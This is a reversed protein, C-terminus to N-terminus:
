KVILPLITQGLDGSAKLMYLGPALGGVDLQQTTHTQLVRAGKVDLIEVDLLSTGQHSWDLTVWDSAPNPMVTLNFSPLNPIWTPELLNVPRLSAGTCGTSDSETLSVSASGIDNGWIVTLTTTGQGEFINGGQVSWEFVDGQAGNYNYTATDGAFPFIPGSINGDGLEYCLGNDVNALENYNCADSDTCGLVAPVGACVCDEGVADFVTDEDGDDCSEGPVECTGNDTNALADYNCADSNTCGLVAPLCFAHEIGDGYNAEGMQFLVAGTSDFAAYTGDVGCQTWYAGNLGDGYTDEIVMTYCGETLCQEFVVSDQATEYTGPSVSAVVEGGDLVLEWGIDEPWCDTLISFEFDICPFDCSGNDITALSDYNYATPGTCGQILTDCAPTQVDIAYALPLSDVTYSYSYNVDPLLGSLLITEGSNISVSDCQWGMTDADNWSCLTSTACLFSSLEVGLTVETLVTDLDANYVCGTSAFISDPECEIPGCNALALQLSNNVNLRGGTVTEGILNNVVDVGDFVYGRVLDAAAQPNGLALEMLGPCPASYILAIAGAVCPTAFSTGSSGGYGSSGSPLLVNEGPAAFDVTTAGYASFTRVDNNNTATISLMYPSSCGTPLDDVVDINVNNNATAGCNLIGVEGLDDYFGCWVTAQSSNGGDIGWSANTAVVFAGREGNSENFLARMEYPYNYSAVVNAESLGGFGMDVQMIDVDWNVGAGGIGNDGTAGIMGSVSTGHEGAGVNDDDSFVNWGNYDDVFGNADDDIGNNPIEAANVWHNEILDVHNYNSGGGELVAVVIRAGSATTGGTTVDWALDSDIDHDGNEVHHWQSDIQPDNPLTERRTVEHNFQAAEVRWDKRLERLIAWDQASTGEQELKFWHIHARPSLVDVHGLGHQEGWKEADQHQHFMVLFEGPLHSQGTSALSGMALTLLLLLVRRVQPFSMEM